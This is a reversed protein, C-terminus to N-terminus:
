DLAFMEDHFRPEIKSAVYAVLESDAWRGEPAVSSLVELEAKRRLHMM